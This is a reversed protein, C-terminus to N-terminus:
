SNLISWVVDVIAVTAALGAGASVGWKWALARTSKLVAVEIALQKVEDRLAIVEARLEDM